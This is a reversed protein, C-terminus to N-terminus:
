KQCAPCYFASRNTIVVRKVPTACRVCPLGARDYVQLGFQFSGPEGSGDRYDSLTTGRAQIAESLVDRITLHLAESDARRLTRARRSPRIRARFLAENAYINGVGALKKQDLLFNRIPSISKRTLQHLLAPTFRDSLPEVGLADSRQTWAQEDRLDLRGFRRADDYLLTRGDHFEIRAAIHRLERAAPADSTLVRGTMGLGIILRWGEDFELVVAKARRSVDLLHRGRLVRGLRAASLGPVLIDPRSVAVARVTAGRIRRRLDRVITEAEPLEPM